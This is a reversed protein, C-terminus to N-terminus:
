AWANDDQDNEFVARGIDNLSVDIWSWGIGAGIYPRFMEHPYRLILNAFINTLSVEGLTVNMFEGDQEGMYNFELETALYPLAPFIYGVKAGVMFSNDMDFEISDGGEELKLDDPILYGGFIGVYLGKQNDAKATGMPALVFVLALLVVALIGGIRKM